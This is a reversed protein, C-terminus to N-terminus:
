RPRRWRLPRGTRPCRVLVFARVRFPGRLVMAFLFFYDMGGCLRYILSITIASSFTFVSSFGLASALGLAAAALPGASPSLSVLALVSPASPSPSAFVLILFDLFRTSTCPDQVTLAVKLLVMMEMVSTLPLTTEQPDGPLTPKLPERLLVGNAAWTAASDA